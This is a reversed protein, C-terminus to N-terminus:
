FCVFFNSVVLFPVIADLTTRQGEHVYVSCAREGTYTQALLDDIVFALSGPTVSSWLPCYLTHPQPGPM